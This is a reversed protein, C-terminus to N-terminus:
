IKETIVYTTLHPLATMEWDPKTEETQDFNHVSWVM